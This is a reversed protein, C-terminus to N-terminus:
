PTKVFYFQQVSLTKFGKEVEGVKPGPDRLDYENWYRGLEVGKVGGRISKAKKGQLFNDRQLGLTQV